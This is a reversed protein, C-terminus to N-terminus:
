GQDQGGPEPLVEPLLDSREEREFGLVPPHLDGMAAPQEERARRAVALRARKPDDRGVPVLREEGERQRLERVAALDVLGEVLRGEFRRGDEAELVDIREELVAEA